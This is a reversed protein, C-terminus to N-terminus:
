PHHTKVPRHPYETCLLNSGTTYGLWCSQQLFYIPQRQLAWRGHWSRHALQSTAASHKARSTPLSSAAQKPQTKHHPPAASLKIDTTPLISYTSHVPTVSLTRTIHQTSSTVVPQGLMRGLAATSIELRGACSLLGLPALVCSRSHKATTSCGRSNPCCVRSAM